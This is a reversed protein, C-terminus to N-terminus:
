KIVYCNKSISLKNANSGSANSEPRSSEMGASITEWPVEIARRPDNWKLTYADKEASTGVEHYYEMGWRKLDFFRAGEFATEFRRFANICNMYPFAEAPVVYKSSMNQTFNWDKQCNPNVSALLNGEADTAYTFYRILLDNTLYKTYGTTVYLKKDNASMSELSCNWYWRLDNAADSYRGLMVEAEARELLLENSTFPRYLEHVYGIGSVKDSYQFHEYAKASFIGYDHSSSSLLQGSVMAMAPCPYGSWLLSKRSYMMVSRATPGALSYRYGFGRRALLSYTNLLMLNGNMEPEGWVNAYDSVSSCGEFKSLDMIMRQVSASDTGLVANAHEIVKEYNRTFLYYRAAFAHAANINFHYKPATTFNVDSILKLGEELDAGIKKYVDAVNGRDYKKTVVSEIETVYPVGVDNKSAEEDKYAQSFINVLMFHDYARLLLAEGKAAKLKESYVGNPAVREIGALAQNVTAVSNYYGGWLAGPSDQSSYTANEAPKFQFLEDDWKQYSGFNYHAKIQNDDESTPLHPCLNDILNDSSIEGVWAPSAEPYASVLLSIVKAETDIETREDPVKDLFSDSCSAMGALVFGLTLVKYKYSKM